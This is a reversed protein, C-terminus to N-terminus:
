DTTLYQPAISNAAAVITALEVVLANPDDTSNVTVQTIPAPVENAFNVAFQGQQLQSPSNANPVFSVSFGISIEKSLLMSGLVVMDNLVAVVNHPTVNDVGLRLRIAKVLALNVYDKMRRKNAFWALPNTSANWVGAWTFGSASIAVDSGISGPEIVSVQQALLQQGQSAGDTLSFSYYTKLGGIGQIQQGSISWGPIGAHQFDVAVQAGLAEAVGDTYGTGSGPIVWADAPILRDSSLTGRWALTDALVGDGGSGVFSVALLSTLVAPLAACLPNAEIAMSFTFAAGTGDGTISGTVTVGPQYDGPETMTISSVAGATLTATAAAGDPSFTVAAHTYDSGGASVQPNTVSYTVQGTYGPSGILRPIFGTLSGASKFAYLGTGAEASGVLNAITTPTDVGRTVLVAVIMAAAQWASLQNNISNLANAFDGTGAKALYTPDSSNFAVPTNLPFQTPDADDAPLLLGIVSFDGAQVPLPGTYSEQIVIGYTPETM